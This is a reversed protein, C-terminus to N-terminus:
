NFCIFNVKLLYRRKHVERIDSFSWKSLSLFIIFFLFLVYINIFAELHLKRHLSGSPFHHKIGEM